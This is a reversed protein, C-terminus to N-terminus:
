SAGGPGGDITTGLGTEADRVEIRKMTPKAWPAGEVGIQVAFIEGFPKRLSHDKDSM